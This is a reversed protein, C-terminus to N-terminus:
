GIGPLPTYTHLDDIMGIVVQQDVTVWAHAMLIKDTEKKVGIHLTSLYGNCGLLYQGVLGSVLCTAFPLRRGIAATAYLIDEQEFYRRSSKRKSLRQLTQVIKQLSFLSLASRIIMVLAVTYILVSKKITPLLLFRRCLHLAAKIKEFKM